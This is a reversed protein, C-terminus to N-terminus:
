ATMPAQKARVESSEPLGWVYADADVKRTRWWYTFSFGPWISRNRGRSDLYWSSCGGTSWVGKELKAQVRDTYRAQAQPRVEVVRVSRADMEDLLRIVYAAQQESMFVVSNHGLASNPGLVFCFNPFRAVNVNLYTEIGERRFQERLETGGRGVVDLYEFSDNVHFGTGYVIVDVEREVGDAGIVGTPTIREVAGNLLDVNARNLTPYYDNSLMVRKCGLRYDPVLRRRLDPDKVSREIHRRVMSEAVRVMRPHGNFMLARTELLWYRAARYARQTGRVRRFLARTREPIPGDAKPLVWPATRQYVTVHEAQKAIEPVFQIASAGTGLVAVRKGALDVDHRWRASHFAVGRFQEQGPLVPINPLHLGGIGSVLVRATYTAGQATSVRWVQDSDDWRASTMEIGFHLKPRLDFDDAVRRLYNWIEPQASYSNTWDPNLAYSFSYMHSPIDCACGPYTNERWTGGVEDAKDIVIFDERGSRRLNIAMGLGSFGSGVILVDTTTSRPTARAAAANSTM